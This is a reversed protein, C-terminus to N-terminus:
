TIPLPLCYFLIVNRTEKIHFYRFLYRNVPKYLRFVFM